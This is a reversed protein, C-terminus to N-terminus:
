ANQANRRGNGDEALADDVAQTLTMARGEEWRAAFTTEGLATAMGELCKAVGLSDGQERHLALSERWLSAAARHHRPTRRWKPRSSRIAERLGPEGDVKSPQSRRTVRHKCCVRWVPAPRRTKEPATRSPWGTVLSRRIGCPSRTRPSACAGLSRRAPTRTPRATACTSCPSPIERDLMQRLQKPSITAVPASEAIDREPAVIRRAAEGETELFDRDADIAVDPAIKLGPAYCEFCDPLMREFDEFLNSDEVLRAERVLPEIRRWVAIAYGGMTRLTVDKDILHRMTLTGVRNYFAGVQHFAEEGFDGQHKALFEDWTREKLRHLVWLQAEQFERSEWIEFLTGTASVFRDKAMHRLQLAVVISGVLFAMASIISAIANVAIWDM